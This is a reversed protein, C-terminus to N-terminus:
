WFGPLLVLLAGIGTKYRVLRKKLSKLARGMQTAVTNISINLHDAIENYSLGSYRSLMFIQRTRSPLADIASAIHNQMRKEEQELEYPLIEEETSGHATSAMGIELSVERKGKANRVTNMAENAVAGFLYGRVSGVPNWDARRKWLKLFVTQVVDEAMQEDRTYSLAVGRLRHYNSTYLCEFAEKDSQERVRRVLRSEELAPHELILATQRKM